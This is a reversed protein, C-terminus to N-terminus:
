QSQKEQGRNKYNKKKKEKKKEKSETENAWTTRLIKLLRSKM